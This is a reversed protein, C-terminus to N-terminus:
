GRTRCACSADRVLFGTSNEFSAQIKRVQPSMSTINSDLDVVHVEDVFLNLSASPSEAFKDLARSFDIVSALASRVIELVSSTRDSCVILIGRAITPGRSVEVVSQGDGGGSVRRAEGQPRPSGADQRERAAGALLDPPDSPSPLSSTAVSCLVTLCAATRNCTPLGTPAGELKHADDAHYHRLAADSPSSCSVVHSRAASTKFTFESGFDSFGVLALDFCAGQTTEMCCVPLGTGLGLVRQYKKLSERHIIISLPWEVEYSLYLFAHPHKEDQLQQHLSLRRAFPDSDLRSEILAQPLRTLPPLPLLLIQGLPPPLSLFHRPHPPSPSAPEFCKVERLIHQLSQLVTGYVVGDQSYVGRALGSAWLGDEAFFYRRLARLHRELELDDLFIRVIERSVQKYQLLIPNVICHEIAVPIPTNYDAAEEEEEEFNLHDASRTGIELSNMDLRNEEEADSSTSDSDEQLAELETLSMQWQNLSGEETEPKGFDIKKRAAQEGAERAAGRAHDAGRQFALEDCFEEADRAVSNVRDLWPTITIADPAQDRPARTAEAEAPLSRTAPAESVDVQEQDGMAATRETPAHQVTTNASFESHSSGSTKKTDVAVEQNGEHRRLLQDRLKMMDSIALEIRKDQLKKRRVSWTANREEDRLREVRVSYEEIIAQAAKEKLAALEEASAAGYHDIESVTKNAEDKEMAESKREMAKREEVQEQLDLRRQDKERQATERLLRERQEISRYTSALEQIRRRFGERAQEAEKRLQRREKKAQLIAMREILDHFRRHYETLKLVDNWTYFLKMPPRFSIKALPHSPKCKRLASLGQVTRLIRERMPKLFDPCQDESKLQFASSYHEESGEPVSRDHSLLFEGGEEPVEAFFLCRSLTELYPHITHCLSKKLVSGGADNEILSYLKNLLLQSRIMSSKASVHSQQVDACIFHLLRLQQRFRDTHCYIEMVTSETKSTRADNGDGDDAHRKQTEGPVDVM